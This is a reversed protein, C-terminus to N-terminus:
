GNFSELYKKLEGLFESAYAGDIARHDVALGLSVVNAVTINQNDFVVRKEIVGLSLIASEPPNIIASFNKIGFMGLNSITFTGTSSYNIIGKRANEANKRSIESIEGIKKLDADPIVPVLLGDKLSVAVGININPKLVLKEDDVHSNLQPFKKLATSVSKILVDNFSVKMGLQKFIKDKWILIKDAIVDIFLYYHPITQKSISLREAIRQRHRSFEIVSDNKEPTLLAPKSVPDRKSALSDLVDEKTIKGGVGSGSLEKIEIGEAGAIRKAMPTAKQASSAISNLYNLVDRKIIRSNPGSPYINRIDLNNEKAIRKASPSATVRGSTNHNEKIRNSVSTPSDENKEAIEASQDQTTNESKDLSIGAIEPNLKEEPEGIFAIPEFVKAEEGPSYLLKIIIGSEYAEVEFNAKDSEVVALVDGKKVEDGEKVYWELIRGSEIDQGVQPMKVPIAM